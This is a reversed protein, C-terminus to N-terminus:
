SFVLCFTVAWRTILFAPDTVIDIGVRVDSVSDLDVNRGESTSPVLRDSLPLEHSSRKSGLCLSKYYPLLSPYTRTRHLHNREEPESGYPTEAHHEAAEEQLFWLPSIFCPFYVLLSAHEWWSSEIFFHNTNPIVQLIFFSHSKRHPFPETQHAVSRHRVQHASVSGVNQYQAKLFICWQISSASSPPSVPDCSPIRDCKCNRWYSTHANVESVMKRM